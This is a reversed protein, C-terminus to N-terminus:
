SPFVTWTSGIAVRPAVPGCGAGSGALSRSVGGHPGQEEEGGEEGDGRGHGGRDLDPDGGLARPGRRAAGGGEGLGQTFGAAPACAIGARRDDHGQGGARVAEGGGHPEPALIAAFGPRRQHDAARRRTPGGRRCGAGRAPGARDPAPPGGAPPPAPGHGPRGAAGEALAGARIWAGITRLPGGVGGAKSTKSPSPAICGARQGASPKGLRLAALPRGEGHRAQRRAREPALGVQPRFAIPAPAPQELRQRHDAGRRLSRARAEGEVARGVLADARARGDAEDVQEGAEVPGPRPPAVRLGPDQEGPRPPGLLGDLHRDGLRQQRDLARGVQPDFRQAEGHGPAVEHADAAPAVHHDGVAHERQGAPAPRHERARLVAPEVVAVDGPGTGLAHHERAAVPAREGGAPQEQAVAPKGAVGAPLPRLVRGNRQVADAGLHRAVVDM